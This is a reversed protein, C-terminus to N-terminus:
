PQIPTAAEMNIVEPREGNAMERSIRVIKRAHYSHIGIMVEQIRKLASEIREVYEGLEGERETKKRLSAMSMMIISLPNNIRDNLMDTIEDLSTLQIRQREYALVLERQQEAEAHREKRSKQLQFFVFLVGWMLILSDFQLFVGLLGGKQRHQSFLDLSALVYYGYIGLAGLVIWHREAFNQIAKWVEPIRHRM